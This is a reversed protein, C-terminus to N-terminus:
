SEWRHRPLTLRTGQSEEGRVGCCVHTNERRPARTTRPCPNRAQTSTNGRREYVIVNSNSQLNQDYISKSHTKCLGSEKRPSMKEMGSTTPKVELM